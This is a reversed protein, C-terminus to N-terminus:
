AVHAACEREHPGVAGGHRVRQGVARQPLVLGIAADARRLPSPASSSFTARPALRWPAARDEPSAYDIGVRPGALVRAPAPGPRLELGGPEGLDHHSWTPDLDLAAGVKGTEILQAAVDAVPALDAEPVGVVVRPHARDAQPHLRRLLQAAHEVEIVRRWTATGERKVVWAGVAAALILLLSALISKM